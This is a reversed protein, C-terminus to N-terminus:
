VPLFGRRIAVGFLGVFGTLLMLWTGPEPTVHVLFEQSANPDAPGDVDSVVYWSSANVSTHNSRAEDVFALATEADIHGSLSGELDGWPTIYRGERVYGTIAWIAAHIHGREQDTTASRFKTALYASQLYADFADTGFGGLYTDTLDGSLRSLEATWGDASKDVFHAADVCYADFAPGGPLPMDILVGYEGVGYGGYTHESGTFTVNGTEQAAAPAAVLGVLIASVGILKDIRMLDWTIPDPLIEVTFARM